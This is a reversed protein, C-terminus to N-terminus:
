SAVPAVMITFSEAGNTLERCTRCAIVTDLPELVSGEQRRVQEGRM